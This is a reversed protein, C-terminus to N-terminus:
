GLFWRVDIAPVGRTLLAGKQNEFAGGCPVGGEKLDNLGYAGM